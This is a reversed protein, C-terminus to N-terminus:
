HRGLVGALSHSLRRRQVSRSLPAPLATLLEAVNSVGPTPETRAAHNDLAGTLSRDLFLWLQEATTARRITRLEAARETFLLQHNDVVEDNVPIRPVVIPVRQLQRMDMVGGAGGQLVIADAMSCLELLRAYPLIGHNEAGPLERSPGHQMVVHVTPNARVWPEMWDVLRNFPLHYTGASVVVMQTTV